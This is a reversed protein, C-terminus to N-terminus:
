HVSWFYKGAKDHWGMWSNRIGSHILIIWIGSIPVQFEQILWHIRFWQFIMGSRIEQFFDSFSNLFVSFSFSVTTFHVSNSDCMRSEDLSMTGLLQLNSDNSAIILDYNADGDIRVCWETVIETDIWCGIGTFTWFLLKSSHFIDVLFIMVKM